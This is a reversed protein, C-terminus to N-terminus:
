RLRDVKANEVLEVEAGILREALIKAGTILLHSGDWLEASDPTVTIIRLDPNDPSTFFTEDSFRWLDKAKQADRTVTASGHIVAYDNGREDSFALTVAPNEAIQDLKDGSIDTLVYIAGEDKRVRAFVPRVHSRNNTTTVFMCPDLRHALAWIRDTVDSDTM